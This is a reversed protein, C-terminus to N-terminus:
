GYSMHIWSDTAQMVQQLVQISKSVNGPIEMSHDAGEVVIRNEPLYPLATEFRQDITGIIGFGPIGCSNIIPWKEYLSPTQWVIQRPEVLKKEIACAIQYTGLSRGLLCKIQNPFQKSVQPLLALTDDEVYKFASERTKLECWIKDEAYVKELALVRYDVFLKQSRM